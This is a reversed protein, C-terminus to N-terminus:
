DRKRAAARLSLTNEPSTSVAAESSIVETAAVAAAAQRGQQQQMMNMAQHYHQFMVKAQHLVTERRSEPVSAPVPVGSTSGTRIMEQLLTQVAKMEVQKDEPLNSIAAQLNFGNGAAPPVSSDHNAVASQESDATGVSIPLPQQQQMRLENRAKLRASHEKCKAKLFESMEPYTFINACLNGSWFFELLNKQPGQDFISYARSGLKMMWKYREPFWVENSTVNRSAFWLQTTVVSAVFLFVFSNYFVLFYTVITNEDTFFTNLRSWFSEIPINKYSPYDYLLYSFTIYSVLIQSFFQFVCYMVFHRHNGGGIANGTWVCYHDFRYVCQNTKSCHKSRLPKRVMSSTDFGQRSIQIEGGLEVADYISKRIEQTSMVCGPDALVARAYCYFMGITAVWWLLPAFSDEHYMKFVTFVQTVLVISGVVLAGSFWGATAMSRRHQRMGFSAVQTFGFAAILLCVFGVFGNMRSGVWIFANPVTFAVLFHKIQAADIQALNSYDPNV